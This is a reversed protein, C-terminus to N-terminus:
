YINAGIIYWSSAIVICREDFHTAASKVRPRHSNYRARQIHARSSPALWSRMVKCQTMTSTNQIKLHTTDSVATM